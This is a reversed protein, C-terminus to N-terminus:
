CALEPGVGTHNCAHNARITIATGSLREPAPKQEHM